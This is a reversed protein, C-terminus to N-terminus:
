RHLPSRVSDSGFFWGSPWALNATMLFVPCEAGQPNLGHTKAFTWCSWSSLPRVEAATKIGLERATKGQKKIYEKTLDTEIWGPTCATITISPFRRALELTYCNVAAKALGYESWSGEAREGLGSAVLAAVKQHAAESEMVHLFPKIMREEVEKWTVEPNVCFEQMELSCKGVFSPGSASSVQPFSLNM